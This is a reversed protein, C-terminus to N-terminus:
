MKMGLYLTINKNNAMKFFSVNKFSRKNLVVIIKVVATQSIYKVVLAAHPQSISPFIEDKGGWLQGHQVTRFVIAFLGFACQFVAM